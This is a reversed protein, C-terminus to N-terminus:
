GRVIGLEVSHPAVHEAKPVAIRLANGEAWRPRQKRALLARLAIVLQVPYFGALVVAPREHGAELVVLTVHVAIPRGSGIALLEAIAVIGKRRSHRLLLLGLPACGVE